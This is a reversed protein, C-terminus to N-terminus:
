KSLSIRQTNIPEGDMLFTILYIGDSVRHNLDDKGNWIIKQSGPAHDKDFLMRVKHGQLDYILITLHGSRVVNFDILVEHQFPNPYIKVSNIQSHDDRIGVPEIGTGAIQIETTGLNTQLTLTGSEEAVEDPTFTINLSGSEGATIFLTDKDVTFVTNNTSIDSVVLNGNGTNSIIVSEQKSEETTVEGFELSASSLEIEPGILIKPSFESTNGVSDTATAVIYDGNQLDDTIGLFALKSGNIFDALAFTDTEILVEGNGLSGAKYFQVLIPYASSASDSDVWYIIEIATAVIDLQFLEPFNQLQNPGSDTDSPDNATAGDGGLDIVPNDNGSFLNFLIQNKQSNAGTIHIGGQNNTITNGDTETDGGIINGASSNEIKIASAGNSSILNKSVQNIFSNILTIGSKTNGLDGTSDRGSGIYNGIILNDRSNRVLIGDAKNGSILNRSAPSTGGITNNIAEGLFYIGNAGNALSLTGSIDTGIYNGAIVNEGGSISDIYIMVGDKDNGSIVNRELVDSISDANTGIRNFKSGNVIIVGSANGGFSNPIAMTGSKDTGILNGAVVNHQSGHSIEVGNLSNGSIINRELSDSVGDGNTGIVNFKASHWIGVGQNNPISDTGTFDTGIYNGAVMNSDSGVGTILVGYSTNGSIINREAATAGGIINSQAGNTIAVGEDANALAITGTVDTGIYNGSVKNLNTGLSNIFVGSAGNGSIINREVDTTGGITNSKAGDAIVVGDRGNVLAITGTVDTGIYNGSVKNFDTGPNGISVGCLGNGSIINREAATTGGITNSKAGCCVVVGENANALSITGSVDTGIFNGQVMNGIASVGNIAIGDGGFRNIV